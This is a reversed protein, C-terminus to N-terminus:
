SNTEIGAVDVGPFRELAMHVRQEKTLQIVM